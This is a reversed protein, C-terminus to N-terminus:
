KKAAEWAATCTACASTPHDVAVHEMFARAERARLEAAAVYLIQNDRRNAARDFETQDEPLREIPESTWAESGPVYLCPM